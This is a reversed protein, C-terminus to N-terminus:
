LSQVRPCFGYEGCQARVRRLRSRRERWRQWLTIVGKVYVAQRRLSWRAGVRVQQTQECPLFAREHRDRGSPRSAKAYGAIRPQSNMEAQVEMM